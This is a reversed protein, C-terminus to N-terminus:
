MCAYHRIHATIKCRQKVHHTLDSFSSWARMCSREFTWGVLPCKYEVACCPTLNLFGQGQLAM